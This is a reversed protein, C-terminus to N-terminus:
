LLEVLVGTSSKPHVVWRPKAGEAVPARGIVTLGKGALTKGTAEVDDVRLALHYFGEGARALRRAVANNLDAKDTPEMLEIFMEDPTGHPSLFASRIGEVAIDTRRFEKMGFNESWLKVAADLDQVVIGIHTIQAAM